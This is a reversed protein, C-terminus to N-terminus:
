ERLATIPSVRVARLAPILSALVAVAILIAGVAAFTLPDRTSVGFLFAQLTKAGLAAIATGAAVGVLALTAGRLVISRLIESSRAGLAMRIGFERTRQSVAYAVVGYIGAAALLLGIGAFVVLLTTQFRESQFHASKIDEMSRFRSIPQHPDIARMQERISEILKGGPTAARIVWSVPFYANSTRIAAASAQTIPVYMLSIPAGTLGAEKVDKVVGVIEMPPDSTFVTVQYGLPNQGKFFERVFAENVVTVRPSGPTDHEGFGRGTVIRIGVTDFYNTTAFRWDVVRNEVRDDGQLPGDPITVNLNLGREIPVGNVLAVSQVGPISRLREIGQEALRNLAEPTSYREGQLSMRATMVGRVEFGPDIARVKMFTHLLLGAGVLLLMCLAVEGVVLVQRVWASRRSSTTRTGDQKFAEALDNRSLSIAPALGFLVGTVLALGITAALVSGDIRVEQYIPFSTPLLALLAPVSWYALALGFIAGALSLMVAETLLQRVIRGRNAGLASRVAM